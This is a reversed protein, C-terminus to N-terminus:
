EGEEVLRVRATMGTKLVLDPNPVDVKVEFSRVDHEYQDNVARHVAFDGANNIWVVKGPIVQGPLSDVTVEAAQGLQVRGIKNETIFIKVYTHEVDTIELVPTGANVMEGQELLKQTIYGSIPAKLLTNDLYAQAEEVAGGAQNSQAVSAEYQSQAAEVKLRASLAQDLGSQAERLKNQALDFNNKADDFSKNSIAGSDHLAQARELQQGADTVGVEAQAVKARAQEIATEVQQSTLPVSSGAQRAQASAAEFAGKAQLLKATLERSDLSALEQGQEVRGGEDVLLAAIKGPVKFSAMVKKAEVTGTATLSDHNSNVAAQHKAQSIFLFITATIIFLFIVSVAAKERTIKAFADPLM